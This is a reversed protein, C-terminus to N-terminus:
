GLAAEVKDLASVLEDSAVAKREADEQSSSAKLGACIKEIFKGRDKRAELLIAWAFANPCTEPSLLGSPTLLNCKAWEVAASRDIPKDPPDMWRNPNVVEELVRADPGDDDVIETGEIPDGLKVLPCYVFRVLNVGYTDRFAKQVAPNSITIQYAAKPYAKRKPRAAGELTYKETLSTFLKKFEEVLGLRKLIPRLIPDSDGKIALAGSPTKMLASRPVQMSAPGPISGPVWLAELADVHVM